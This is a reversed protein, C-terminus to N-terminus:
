WVLRVVDETAISDVGWVHALTSERRKWAQGLRWWLAAAVVMLLFLGLTTFEKTFGGAEKKGGGKVRGKTEAQLSLDGHRLCRGVM